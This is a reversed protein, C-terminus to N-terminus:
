ILVKLFVSSWSIRRKTHVETLMSNFSQYADIQMHLEILDRAGLCIESISRTIWALLLSYTYCRCCMWGRNREHFFFVIANAVWGLGVIVNMQLVVWRMSSSLWCYCTSPHYDVVCLPQKCAMWLWFGAAFVPKWFSPAIFKSMGEKRTTGM